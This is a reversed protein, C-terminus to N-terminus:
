RSCSAGTRGGTDPGPVPHNLRAAILETATPQRRAPWQDDLKGETRLTPAQPARPVHGHMPAANSTGHACHLCARCARLRAAAGRATPRLSLSSARWVPESVGRGESRIGQGRGGARTRAQSVRSPRRVHVARCLVTHCHPVRGPGCMRMCVHMTAYHAPRTPRAGGARTRRGVCRRGVIAPADRVYSVELAAAAPERPLSCLASLLSLPSPGDRQSSARRNAPGARPVRRAHDGTAPSLPGLPGLWTLWTLRSAPPM